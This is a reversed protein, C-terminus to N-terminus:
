RFVEHKRPKTTFTESRQSVGSAVEQFSGCRYPNGGTIYLGFFVTRFAASLVAAAFGTVVLAQDLLERIRLIAPDM